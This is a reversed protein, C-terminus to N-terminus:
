SYQHQFLFFEDALYQWIKLNHFEKPVLFYLKYVERSLFATFFDGYIKKQDQSQSDCLQIVLVKSNKLTLTIDSVFYTGDKSTGKATGLWLNDETEVDIIKNCKKSIKLISDRVNKTYSTTM